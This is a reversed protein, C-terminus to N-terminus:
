RKVKWLVSVTVSGSSKEGEGREVGAHGGEVGGSEGAKRNAHGGLDIPWSTGGGTIEIVDGMRITSADSQPGQSVLLHQKGLEDLITACRGDIDHEVCVIRISKPQENSPKSISTGLELVWNRVTDAFGGSHYDRKGRRRSPSFTDPLPTTNSGIQSPLSLKFIPKTNFIDSIPVTPAKFRPITSTSARIHSPSSFANDDFDSDPNFADRPPQNLKHDHEDHNSNCQGDDESGPSSILIADHHEKSESSPKLRKSTPLPFDHREIDQITDGLRYSKRTTERRQLEHSRVDEHKMYRVKSCNADADVEDDEDVLDDHCGHVTEATKRAKVEEPSSGTEEFSVDIEDIENDSTAFRPTKAFQSSPPQKLFPSSRSTQTNPGPPRWGSKPTRFQNSSPLFKRPGPTSM